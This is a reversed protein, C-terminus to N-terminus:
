LSIRMSSPITSATSGPPAPASDAELVNEDDSPGSVLYEGLEIVGELSAESPDVMQLVGAGRQGHHLSGQSRFALPNLYWFEIPAKVRKAVSRNTPGTDRCAGAVKTKIEGCV